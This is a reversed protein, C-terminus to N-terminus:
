NSLVERWFLIRDHGRYSGFTIVANPVAADDGHDGNQNWDFRLWPYNTLDIGVNFSGTNSAGPASFSLGADGNLLEVDTGLNYVTFTGETSASGGGIPVTRNNDDLLSLGAFYIDAVGIATCNDQENQVFRTGNWYQSQLVVPLPASEPGHVDEAFLRGFVANLTGGLSAADCSTDLSCDTDTDANMNLQSTPLAVADLGGIIQIGLRLTTFPGDLGEAGASDERSFGATDSGSLEFEGLIWSATSVSVRSSLNMGDNSDEAVYSASAVPYGLSQDYNTVTAGLGNQALVNFNVDIPTASFALDSMYTFGGVACGDASSASDLSLSAPYFRGISGSGTGVVNGQGMYDGDDAEARLTVTGVETWVVGTNQFEGATATPSFSSAGQLAGTAGGLPFVLSDLVLTIGEATNENGFNPTIVGTAGQAEVNVTFATGAPVFGSGSSTTAPNATTDPAEVLTIVLDDPRVITTDSGGTLTQAPESATAALDVEAHLRIEGVDFYQATLVAEGEADFTLSLPEFDVVASLNNEEIGTGNVSLDKDRVCSSPNVCEYALDVTQTGTFRAICEGTETSTEVARLIIQDSNVGAISPGSIPNTGDANGDGNVDAYFRLGVDSFTLVPDEAGGDIDTIGSDVTDVADIDIVAPTINALALVVSTEGTAFQYEVVGAGTSTLSGTGSSLSWSADSASWGVSASTATVSVTTGGVDVDAHSADHATITVSEAECTVGSGSHSIAYHDAATSGCSHREDMALGVQVESLTQDYIKVEDILGNFRRSHFNLDTGIFVADNNLTISQTSNHTAAPVGDFYIIQSGSEFTITIHTWTNLPVGASSTLQRDGGGWWWNLQGSSNLHFEFNEDKSVISSLGSSPYSFPYIWVAVTFNTPLDLISGTGPDNVQLYGDSTGNFVGYGCTGPNRSDVPNANDTTPLDNLNVATADLGNGSNDFVEGATGSWSDEDLRYEAIPAPLSPAATETIVINDVHWFDWNNGSGDLQTIRLLFNSHLASPPLEFSPEFIEGSTGSGTYTVLEVWLGSANFYEIVLDEGSDPDESFLDDGRRVWLDLTAGGVASIDVGSLMTVRVFDESLSLSRPSTDFTAATIEAEGSGSSTWDATFDATDNFQEEFLTDGPAADLHPTWMAAVTLLLWSIVAAPSSVKFLLVLSKTVRSELYSRKFYPYM